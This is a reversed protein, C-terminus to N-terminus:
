NGTYEQPTFELGLKVDLINSERKTNKEVM